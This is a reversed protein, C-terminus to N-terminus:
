GPVETMEPENLLTEMEKVLNHQESDVGVTEEGLLMYLKAKCQQGPHYKEDCHFCLGKEMREMIEKSSLTSKAKYPTSSQFKQEYKDETPKYQPKDWTNTKPVAKTTASAIVKHNRAEEQKALYVADLLSQPRFMRVAGKISDKLGSIFSSVFYEETFGKQKTVVLARLEEFNDEYDSITSTQKLKNFLDQVDRSDPNEFRNIVEVVFVKWPVVGRSSQHFRYWVNAKGEFHLGDMKVKRGEEINIFDFYQEAKIVWGKPDTGSFKPFELKPNFNFTAPSTHGQPSPPPITHNHNQYTFPNYPPIFGQQQNPIVHPQSVPTTLPPTVTYLPPAFAYQPGVNSVFNSAGVGITTHSNMNNFHMYNPSMFQNHPITQVVFPMSTFPASFQPTTSNSVVMVEPKHTSQQESEDVTIVTSSQSVLQEQDKKDQNHLGPILKKLEEFINDLREMRLGLGEMKQNVEGFKSSVQERNKNVEEVVEKIKSDHVGMREDLSKM